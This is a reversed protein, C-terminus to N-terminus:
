ALKGANRRKRNFNVNSAISASAFLISSIIFEGSVFGFLGTLFALATLMDKYLDNM